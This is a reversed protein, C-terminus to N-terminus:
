ISGSPEASPCDIRMMPPAPPTPEAEPASWEDDYAPPPPPAFPDDPAAVARAALGLLCAAALGAALPLRNMPLHTKM